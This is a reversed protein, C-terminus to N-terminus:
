REDGPDARHRVRTEERVVDNTGHRPNASTQERAIREAVDGDDLLIEREDDQPDDGDRQQREDDGVQSLPYTLAARLYRTGGTGTARPARRQRHRDERGRRGEEG